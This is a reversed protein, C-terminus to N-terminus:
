EWVVGERWWLPFLNRNKAWVQDKFADDLVYTTCWDDESRVGRGCMQMITRVTNVAYWMQGARGGGYLRAAVQKDGLNPFPVKCIVQVRCDEHPLDVGRDMSPAVLCAGAHKRFDALAADREGASRYSFVTRGVDLLVGRVYDSLDYSVAHLLMRDEPHRASIRALSRALAPKAEDITKRGMNGTPIVHVRRHEVPFSSGVKVWEYGQDWGLSDLLEGASIVTGSMLLWRDGHRWLRDRGLGDVKIPKFEVGDNRGTFVWGGDELGAAVARMKSELEAAYKLERTLKTLTKTPMAPGDILTQQGNGHLQTTLENVKGRIKPLYDAFWQQWSSEVTVKEPPSWKWSAMRFRGIEFSVHGMLEQELLDAEDAIVLGRGSFRGPGNAETLFYAYNLIALPDAIAAGKAVEYPCDRKRTCFLCKPTQKSWTCDACTEGTIPHQPVYNARGKLVSGWGERAVQDQLSKTSCLYATAPVQLMRRVTEGTVTKGFGTPADLVVLKVGRSYADLIQEIADAQKARLPPLGALLPNIGSDICIDFPSGGM